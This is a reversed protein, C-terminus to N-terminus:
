EMFGKFDPEEGRERQELMHNLEALMDKMRQMQEPSVDRMGESLQNFYSQLLQQRLEDMLEEFRQRAAEDMFDYDQLAQVRRAPDPPMENLQQRRQQALEEVMEQRRRDGSQQAEDLRREIGAREQDVVERLKEAIDDYVGGLDRRELEERRRQR